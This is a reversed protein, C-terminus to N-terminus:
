KKLRSKMRKELEKVIPATSADVESKKTPEPSLFMLRKQWIVKLGSDEKTALHATAHFLERRRGSADPFELPIMMVTEDQGWFVVLSIDSQAPDPVIELAGYKAAQEKNWLSVWELVSDKVHPQEISFYIKLPNTAPLKGSEVLTVPIAPEVQLAERLLTYEDRGLFDIRFIRRVKTKQGGVDQQKTKYFVRIRMGPMIESVKLERQSGDKMKVKYGEELIGVFTETKDKEYDRLVIERTADNTAVVKGTWADGLVTMSKQARTFSVLLAVILGALLIRRM